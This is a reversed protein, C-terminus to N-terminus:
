GARRVRPARLGVQVALGFALVAPVAGALGVNAIGWREVAWGGLAAGCAIGLNSASINLSMAFAPALSGALMVRVQCLVFAAAHA